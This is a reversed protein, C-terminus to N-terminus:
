EWEEERVLEGQYGRPNRRALRSRPFLDQLSRVEQHIGEAKWLALVPETLSGPIETGKEDEGSFM